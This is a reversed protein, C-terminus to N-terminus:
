NTCPLAIAFSLLVFCDPFSHVVNDSLSVPYLADARQLFSVIMPTSVSDHCANPSVNTYHAPRRRRLCSLRASRSGVPMTSEVLLCSRRLWLVPLIPLPYMNCLHSLSPSNMLDLRIQTIPFTVRVIQLSLMNTHWCAQTIISSRRRLLHWHSSCLFARKHRRKM